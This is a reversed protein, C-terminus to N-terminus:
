NFRNFIYFLFMIIPKEPIYDNESKKRIQQILYIQKFRSSNYLIEHVKIKTYNQCLKIDIERSLFM